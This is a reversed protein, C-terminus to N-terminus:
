DPDKDVIVSPKALRLIINLTTYAVVVVVLSPIHKEPSTWSIDWHFGISAFETILYKILDINSIFYMGSSPSCPGWAFIHDAWQGPASAIKGHHSPASFIVTPSLTFKTSTTILWQDSDRRIPQSLWDNNQNNQDIFYIYWQPVWITTKIYLVHPGEQRHASSSCLEASFLPKKGMKGFDLIAVRIKKQIDMM